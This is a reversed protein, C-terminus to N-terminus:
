DMSEANRGSRTLAADAMAPAAALVEAVRLWDVATQPHRVSVTGGWLEATQSDAGTEPDHSVEVVDVVMDDRDTTYSIGRDSVEVLLTIRRADM